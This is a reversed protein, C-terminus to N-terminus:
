EQIVVVSKHDPIVMGLKNEAIQQVRAQMIWTSRELLLQGQQVHLHDKEVLCHEYNAHLVRTVQTFYIIGFASLLISLALLSPLMQQRTFFYHRVWHFSLVNQHVLRGAANM